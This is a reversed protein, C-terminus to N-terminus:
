NKSKLKEKETSDRLVSRVHEVLVRPNITIEYGPHRKESIIRDFDLFREYLGFRKLFNDLGILENGNEKMDVDLSGLGHIDKQFQKDVKQIFTTSPHYNINSFTQLIKLLNDQDKSLNGKDSLFEELISNDGSFIRIFKIRSNIGVPFVLKELDFHRSEIREM